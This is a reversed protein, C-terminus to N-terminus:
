PPWPLTLAPANLAKVTLRTGRASNLVRITRGQGPLLDFYNDEFLAGSVEDFQLSVQRAFADTTIEIGDAVQRATLHAAPLHLYREGILLATAEHAAFRAHLFQTRLSIEGFDSLDLCRRAEGPKVTVEAQLKGQSGQPKGDFNMRQVVLPGSVTQPSDNVVWVHIRDPTREFCVLVPEYARRMFYYAIKPDLYYDVVSSYIIPFSDNFRWVINGWCRRNGAPAGDPIGRREREIRQQLYEGHATGIVRVLDEASAPDCYNEITGVRDWTAIGTSHYTWAPPWAPEGPKRIAPDFGHPWLEEDSLFRKMSTLTPTSARLMETVFLPVSAEPAFNITTYDHWDGELPWNGTPGGYPSSVHFLRSPDLRRCADAMIKELVARHREPPNTVPTFLYQENGGCWLLVSAHNRLRLITQEIEQRCNETFAPDGAPRLREAGNGFMFDQWICIGRRDCEEYFSQPSLEGEGWVRFININGHEALDLLQRARDPQWVHTMGELPVWDGGRLFIPQGNIDFRFRKEGSAPDSLVPRVERIGVAMQRRDLLRLGTRLTVELSYLNQPGHMRPWWLQPNPVAMDATVVGLAEANEGRAVEAGAPDRLVWALTAKAGATEAQLHLTAARYDPSLETRVWADQLWAQQPLDLVVDRYIGVKISHPTAGLYSGFDSFAKRVVNFKGARLADAPLQFERIFRQPSSFVVILTNTEGPPALRDKVDASYERFMNDFTGIPAGNLYAAALTDLGEFRLFAPGANGAPRAPTAFRCIYAWDKDAVWASAAANRGVHPDPILNQQLLIDHVQAPMRAPMWNKDPAASARTLAAIDPKDSDLQKVLWGDRLPLQVRPSPDPEAARLSPGVLTIAIFTAIFGSRYKM